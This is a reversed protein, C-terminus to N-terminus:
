ARRAGLLGRLDDSSVVLSRFLGVRGARVFAALSLFLMLGYALSSTLAAGAIGYRPVVYLNLGVNLALGAAPALATIAPMGRGGFHNMLVGNLGLALVGPLLLRTALISGEFEAGYLLRVVPGVLVGAALCLAALLM